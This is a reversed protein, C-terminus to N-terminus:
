TLVYPRNLSSEEALRLCQKNTLVYSVYFNLPVKLLTTGSLLLPEYDDDKCNLTRNTM